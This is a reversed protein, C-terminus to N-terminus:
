NQEVKSPEPLGPEVAPKGSPLFPKRFAEEFSYGNKFDEPRDQDTKRLLNNEIMLFVMHGFDECSKIGWEEFVTTTMPGFVALAYQRIGNLLEPGTIHRVANKNTRGVAKQTFELAERLFLYADRHYRPNAEVMKNLVDEFNLQQMRNSRSLFTSPTHAFYSGRDAFSRGLVSICVENRPCHLTFESYCCHPAGRSLAPAFLNPNLTLNLPPM